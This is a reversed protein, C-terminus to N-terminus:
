RDYLARLATLDAPSLGTARESGIDESSRLRRRYGGFYREGDDPHRFSYMIDDFADTHPLGLAHGLEHLATLYIVIRQQLADGAVSRAILVEASAIAGTSRDLRPATEGYIGDAQVFRVRIRAGERSAAKQLVIAGDAARTWTSVARDVLAGAGPPAGSTDVWVTVAARAPWTPPRGPQTKLAPPIAGAVAMGIVMAKLM